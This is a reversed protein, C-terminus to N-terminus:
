DFSGFFNGLPLDRVLRWSFDGAVWFLNGAFCQSPLYHNTGFSIQALPPADTSYSSGFSEGALKEMAVSGRRQDRRIRCRVHGIERASRDAIWARERIGNEM